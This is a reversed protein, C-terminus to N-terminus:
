RSWARRKRLVLLAGAGILSLGFMIPFGADGGTFPLNGTTAGPPATSTTAQGSIPTDPATTETVPPPVTYPPVTTSGEIVITTTTTAETTTTTPAETTTTPAETTTTPAETTTTTSPMCDHELLVSTEDTYDVNDPWTSHVHLTVTGTSGAPLV